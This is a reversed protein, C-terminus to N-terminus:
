RLLIAAGRQRVDNRMVAPSYRTRSLCNETQHPGQKRRSEPKGLGARYRYEPARRSVPRTAAARGM